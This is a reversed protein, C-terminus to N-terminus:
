GAAPAEAPLRPLIRWQRAAFAAAYLLAFAESATFGWAAGEAGYTPALAITLGLIVAIRGLGFVVVRRPVEEALLLLALPTSIANCFTGVLIIRSLHAADTFSAGFIGTTARPALFWLLVIGVNIMFAIALSERVYARLTLRSLLARPVRPLVLASLAGILLSGIVSIRLAASYLGVEAKGVYHAVAILDLRQGIVDVVNAAVLWKAFAALGLIESRTAQVSHTLRLLWVVSVVALLAACVGFVVYIPTPSLKVDGVLIPILAVLVLVYYLSNVIGFPLYRQVALYTAAWLNTVGVLIGTLIAGTLPLTLEPRGFAKAALLAAVPYAAIALAATVAIKIVLAARLVLRPDTRGPTNAHRVYTIDVFQTAISFPLMLALFRSFDGFRAPGLARAIIVTAVFSTMRAGASGGAIIAYRRLRVLVRGSKALRGIFAM